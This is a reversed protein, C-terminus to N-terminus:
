KIIDRNQVNFSGNGGSKNKTLLISYQQDYWNVLDEISSSVLSPPVGETQSQINMNRIAVGLLNYQNFSLTHIPKMFFSEPRERIMAFPNLFFPMCGLKTIDDEKVIGLTENLIKQHVNLEEKDMNDFEDASFYPMSLAPDKFFLRLVFYNNLEKEAFSECTPGMVAEKEQQLAALDRKADEVKKLVASRQAPVVMSQAYKENDSIFFKLELIKDENVQSWLGQEIIEKNRVDSSLLGETQYFNILSAKKSLVLALEKESFHKVYIEEPLRVSYGNVIDNYVLKLRNLENITEDNM